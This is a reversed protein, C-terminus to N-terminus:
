PQARLPRDSAREALERVYTQYAKEEEPSGFGDIRIGFESNPGDIRSHMVSGWTTIRVEGSAPHVRFIAHFVGGQGALVDGRVLFGTASLNHIHMATEIPEQREMYLLVSFRPAERRNEDM